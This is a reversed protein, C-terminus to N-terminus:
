SYLSCSHTKKLIKCFWHNAIIGNHRVTIDHIVLTFVQQYDRSVDLGWTTHNTDDVAVGDRYWGLSLQPSITVSCTIIYTVKHALPADTTNCREYGSFFLKLLVLATNEWAPQVEQSSETEGNFNDIKIKQQMYVHIHNFVPYKTLTM